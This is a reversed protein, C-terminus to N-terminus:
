LVNSWKKKRRGFERQGRRGGMEREGKGGGAKVGGM